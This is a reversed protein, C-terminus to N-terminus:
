LAELDAPTDVDAVVGPDDVPIRLTRGRLVSRAGEPLAAAGALAPWLARAVAVPHGGRDRYVPAAAGGDPVAALVARVSAGAVRAHDVPWLLAIRADPFRVDADELLAAFGVGVSSGMGRSPDPNEICTLGLREAEARVAGGHPAGIVVRVRSAAVGVDGLVGAIVQLFTAGGPASLLAKAVGGLRVGAGAALIVAVVDGDAM